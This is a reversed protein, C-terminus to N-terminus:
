FTNKNTKFAMVVQELLKDENCYLINLGTTTTTTTIICQVQDM